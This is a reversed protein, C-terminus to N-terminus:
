DLLANKGEEKDDTCAIVRPKPGAERTPKMDQRIEAASTGGVGSSIIKQAAEVINSTSRYNEMLYVTNSNPFEKCFDSMMGVHAGRWSYISQDADGVVFLSETTLLKVVDLQTLSTDQFEDVLVHTWRRRMRDRVDDHEALLERTFYILDDFDVHNNSILKQRYSDYVKATVQQLQSLPRGNKPQFPNKGHAFAEKSSSIASLISYTRVTLEKEVIGRDKLVEKLVRLQEAQDAIAFNADLTPTASSSSHKVVSPL